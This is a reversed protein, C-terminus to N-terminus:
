AYKLTLNFLSVTEPYILAFYRRQLDKRKSMQNFLSILFYFIRKYLMDYLKKNHFTVFLGVVFSQVEQNYKKRHKKLTECIPLIYFYFSRNVHKFHFIRMQIFSDSM